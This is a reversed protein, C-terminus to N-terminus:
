TKKFNVGFRITCSSEPALRLKETNMYIWANLESHVMSSSIFIECGCLVKYRNIMKLQPPTYKRLITNSVIVDEYEFRAKFFGGGSTSKIM